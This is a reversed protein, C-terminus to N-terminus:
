PKYKVNARLRPGYMWFVWPIPMMAVSIFGFLSTAWGIGLGDYMYNVWLPFVCGVTYRALNNAGMASATYKAGYTDTLYLTAAMFIFLNGCGFFAEAIVPSIWHVDSRATWAFWFLSIPILLSGAMAIYLRSEPSIKGGQGNEKSIRVQRKVLTKNLIIIVACGFICGVGLGLFTLGSQGLGFGYVDRMIGEFVAFFSYLMAFNMAIYITFLGVIPETLGMHIPRTLQTTLFFKASELTSKQKGPPTLGLRKARTRLIKAKFTEQMGFAPALFAITFFLLVWQTWRWGYAVTAYGGCLPGLAPGLFPTLIYLAMPVAREHPRWVDAVTASGISLGPSGFIGAFFRCVILSAINNSFGSGLIFLAFIPISVLYVARRGLVESSPGALMPGVALALVYLSYPLIAVTPSVGFERMVDERGPVYISSALTCVLAIGATIFTHYIRKYKPWNWPNDPDDAGDWDDVSPLQDNTETKSAPGPASASPTDSPKEDEVNRASELDVSDDFSSKRSSKSSSSLSM